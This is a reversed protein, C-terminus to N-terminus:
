MPISAKDFYVETYTIYIHACKPRYLIPMILHTSLLSIIIFDSLSRTTNHNQLLRQENLSSQKLM